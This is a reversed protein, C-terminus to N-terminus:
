FHMMKGNDKKLTWIDKQINVFSLILMRISATIFSFDHVHSLNHESFGATTCLLPVNSKLQKFLRVSSSCAQIHFEYCLHNLLLKLATLFVCVCISCFCLSSLCSTRFKMNFRLIVSAGFVYVNPNKINTHWPWANTMRKCTQTM